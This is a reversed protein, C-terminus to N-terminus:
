SARDSVRGPTWRARGPRWLTELFELLFALVGGALISVVAGVLAIARWRPPAPQAPPQAPEVVQLYGLSLAQSQKLAAENAKRQLFEYNSRAQDAAVQLTDLEATLGLLAALDTDRRAALQEYETAAVRQSAATASQAAALARYNRAQQRYYEEDDQARRLATEDGTTRATAAQRAATEAAEDMDRALADYTSQLTEAQRAAILANDREFRLSRVADQYAQIERDLSGLNNQLKFKLLADEAAALTQKAQELQQQIFQGSVVAPRSRVERYYRLAHEVVTSAISEAQQPSDGEASVVLFDGDRVAAIRDLLDAASIGLNLQAITRLAVLDSTVVSIFDSQTAIIEDATAVNRVQTFLTVEEPEVALVQLRVSARYVPRATLASYGIVSMTAVFLLVMVWLWKRLIALYSFSHETM